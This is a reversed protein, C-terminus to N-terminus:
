VPDMLSRNIYFAPDSLLLCARDQDGDIAEEAPEM